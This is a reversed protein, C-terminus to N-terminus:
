QRLEEDLETILKSIKDPAPLQPAVGAVAFMEETTVKEGKGKLFRGKIVASAYVENQGAYYKQRLYFHREDWAVILTEIYFKQFPTLSKRFRIAESIVVPYIGQKRIKSWAGSRALMDIRGLDMLSFYVGNNMHMLPDLDTPWVRMYYKSPGTIPVRGRFPATLLLWVLRFLHNM